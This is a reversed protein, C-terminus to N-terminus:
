ADGWHFDAGCLAIFRLRSAGVVIEQGSRLEQPVLVPAGDLYTLNRGEGQQVYFKLGRPDYTVVAHRERSITEDGFDLAVRAGPSRGIDNAGYGLRRWHGKGPGDVVVMWGVVPDGASGAPKAGAPHIEAPGTLRTRDAAASASPRAGPELLATAAEAGAPPNADPLRVVVPEPRIWPPSEPPQPPSPDQQWLPPPAAASTAASLPDGGFGNTGATGKRVLLVLLWISGIAPVLPLLAWWGGHGTDHLRRVTVALGPLLNAVMWLVAIAEAPNGSPQRLADLLVTIAIWAVTQVLTFLWYERRRARGSFTAYKRYCGLIDGM